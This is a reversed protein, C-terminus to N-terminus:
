PREARARGLAIGEARLADAVLAALDDDGHVRASLRYHAGGADIAVLDVKADTARGRAVELIKARAKTQEARSDIAIELAVAANTAAVAHAPTVRTANFLTLLHPVRIEGGGDAELTIGLLDVDKVRGASGRLEVRDGKVMSRGFIIPIGAAVSAALPTTALGIAFLIAVGLRSLAGDDAGTLPAALVLAAAIVAARALVSTPGALDKPLWHLKTNGEAVSEFFLAIFRVLVGIALAAVSAVVLIPLAAGLRSLLAWTPGLVFGTLNATYDRTAAFLSLAFLLWGYGIAIQAFLHVLGLAIRVAGLVAAPGIVEIHRLRLAPIRQPNDRVWQRARAAYEGVQRFLLLVLLASFVLLSVSFVISAIDSRTEEARVAEEARGAIATAYAHLSEGEPVDEVGLTVIPTHGVFVVAVQAAQDEELHAQPTQGEDVATDLAHSAAAARAQATQGARDAKLAFVLREHVRVPADM